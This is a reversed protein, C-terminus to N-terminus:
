RIEMLDIGRQPLQIIISLIKSNCKFINRLYIVNGNMLKQSHLFAYFTIQKLFFTKNLGALVVVGLRGTLKHKNSNRKIEGAGISDSTARNEADTVAFTSIKKVYDHYLM